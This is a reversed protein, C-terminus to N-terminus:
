NLLSVQGLLVGTFMRFDGILSFSPYIFTAPRNLEFWFHGVWAFFYGTFPLAMIKWWPVGQLWLAGAGCALMIGFEFFGHSISIFAHCAWMGGALAAAFGVPMRLDTGALLLLLLTGVFHSRRCATDSHETLYFPYFEDFSRFPKSSAREVGLGLYRLQDPSANVAAAILVASVALIAASTQNGTTMRTRLAGRVRRQYRDRICMESGVLSRLM